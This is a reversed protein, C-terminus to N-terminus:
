QGRVSVLRHPLVWAASFTSARDAPDFGWDLRLWGDTWPIRARMGTGLHVAGRRAPPDATRRDPSLVKVGDAFAAVGIAVPGVSGVPRVLEVGVHAWATGPFLPRVVGDGDLDSRARMLLSVNGGAGIRPLLDPAIGRSVAAFGGQVGLGTRTAHREPDPTHFSGRVEFRGYRSEQRPNQAPDGAGLLRVWGTGEAGLTSRASPPLLAWALGGGAFTGRGPRVDIRAHATGKLAATFWDAHSWAVTTREERFSGDLGPRGYRGVEHDAVWRWVGFGGPATHSLAVGGGHLSGEVTGSLDWQELRGFPDAAVMHVRRGLLRFAHAVLDPNTFPHNPRLVVTGNVSVGEGPQARYELRARAAAPLAVLRREGRVLRGLTLPRGEVLGTLRAPDPGTVVERPGDHGLVRVELDRVVRESGHSWARLAGRTDDQLYRTTALFDWGYVSGPDVRVLRAALAEADALRGQRFRIGALAGLLRPHHPCRDLAPVLIAEAGELQGEEALAVADRLVTEVPDDCPERSPVAQNDQLTPERFTPLEHAASPVATLLCPASLLFCTAVAAARRVIRRRAPRDVVQGYTL